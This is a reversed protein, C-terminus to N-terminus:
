KGGTKSDRVQDVLVSLTQPKMLSLALPAVTRRVKDAPSALEIDDPFLHLGIENLTFKKNGLLGIIRLDLYALVRNRHWKDFDRQKFPSRMDKIGTHKRLKQVTSAMDKLITETPALLNVRFYAYGDERIRKGDSDILTRYPQSGLQYLQCDAPLASGGTDPESHRAVADSSCSAARVNLQMESLNNVTVEMVARQRDVTDDLCLRSGDVAPLLPQQIRRMCKRYLADVHALQAAEGDPFPFRGNRLQEAEFLDFERPILNSAWRLASFKETGEYKTIDFFSPISSHPNGM